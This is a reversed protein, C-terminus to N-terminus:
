SAFSDRKMWADHFADVIATIKQKAEADGERYRKVLEKLHHESATESYLGDIESHTVYFGASTGRETQRTVKYNIWTADARKPASIGEIKFPVDIFLGRKLRVVDGINYQM